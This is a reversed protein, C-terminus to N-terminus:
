VTAPMSRRSGGVTTTPRPPFTQGEPCATQGGQRPQGDRRQQPQGDGRRQSFASTGTQVGVIPPSSPSPSAASSTFRKRDPLPLDNGTPSPRAANFLRPYPPRRFGEVTGFPPRGRRTFTTLNTEAYSRERFDGVTCCYM